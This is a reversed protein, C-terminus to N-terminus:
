VKLRFVSTKPELVGRWNRYPGVLEYKQVEHEHFTKLLDSTLGRLAARSATGLRMLLRGPLIDEPIEQGSWVYHRYDRSSPSRRGREWVARHILNELTELALREAETRTKLNLASM